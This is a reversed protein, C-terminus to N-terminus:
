SLDGRGALVGVVGSVELPPDPFPHWFVQHESWRDTGWYLGFEEIMRGRRDIVVRHPGLVRADPLEAVAVRPVVLDSDGVFRPHRPPEGAPVTRRVREEPRAVWM